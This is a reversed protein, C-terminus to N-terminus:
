NWVIKSTNREELGPTDFMLDLLWFQCLLSELGAWQLAKSFIFVSM